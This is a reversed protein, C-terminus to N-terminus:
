AVLAETDTLAETKLIPIGEVDMPIPAPAGTSNTATRSKRLQKRGTRNMVILDPAGMPFAEIADIVKDDDLSGAPTGDVNAIRCMSYKGGIQLGTWAMGATYYAPLNKGDIIHNSVVTDELDINAGSEGEGNGLMVGAVDDEGLKILYVSTCGGVTSGGGDLVMEDALANLGDAEPFGTFGIADNGTGNFYQKELHYMAARIHAFGERAIFHEKGKRWRKAMAMDCLWSFDLVKLDVSVVTDQSKSFDRGENTNRFGVVPAGIRKPYKHNDGNSSPVFPLSMLFSAEDKLDSIDKDTLDLADAVADAITYIDDAM